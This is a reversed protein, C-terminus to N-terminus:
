KVELNNWIEWAKKAQLKLMELGNCTKAGKEAGKAMFSTVAPNYILDYLIHDSTLYEYPIPPYNETNPHTGLPTCNVILSYSKMIDEDLNKYTLENFDPNRSVFTYDIHLKSLAYAIAKSAGGTGLILAKKTKETLLPKLSESFGYFDSNYGKLRKKKDVTIVNVAGIEKAIPDLDDLHAIIEEKYPITVNLGILEPTNTVTSLERISAIDFNEYVCSLGEKEFKKSFFDKSFSYGINKGILGYKKEM